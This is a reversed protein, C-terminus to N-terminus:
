EFEVIKYRSTFGSVMHVNANFYKSLLKVVAANARGRQAPAKVKVLYTGDEQKEISEDKSSSSVAVVVRM